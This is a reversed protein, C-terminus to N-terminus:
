SLHAFLWYVQGDEGYVLHHTSLVETGSMPQELQIEGVDIRVPEEDEEEEEEEVEANEDLKFMEEPYGVVEGQFCDFHSFLGRYIKFLLYAYRLLSLPARKTM